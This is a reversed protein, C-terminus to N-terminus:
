KLLKMQISYSMPMETEPDTGSISVKHGVFNGEKDFIFYVQALFTEHRDEVKIKLNNENEFVYYLPNEGSVSNVPLDIRLANIILDTLNDNIIVDDSVDNKTITLENQEEGTNITGSLVYNDNENTLIVNTTFNNYYSVDSYQNNLTGTVKIAQTSDQYNIQIQANYNPAITKMGTEMWAGMFKIHDPQPDLAEDSTFDFSQYEGSVDLINMAEIKLQLSIDGTFIYNENYSQNTPVFKVPFSKGNDQATVIQKPNSWELTGMISSGNNDLYITDGAIEIEELKVESTGDNLTYSATYNNNTVDDQTLIFEKKNVTILTSEDIKTIGLYNSQEAFNIKGFVYYEGAYVDLWPSSYSEYNYKQIEDLNDFKSKEVYNWSVTEGEKLAYNLSVEPLEDGYTWTNKSLYITYPSDFAPSIQFSNTQGVNEYSVELTYYGVDPIAKINEVKNSDKYYNITYEGPNLVKTSNDDYVATVKINSSVIENLNVGYRYEYKEGIILNDVTISVIKKGGCATLMFMSPMILSAAVTLILFKKKM